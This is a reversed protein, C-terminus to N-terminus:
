SFEELLYAWRGEPLQLRTSTPRLEVKKKPGKRYTFQQFRHEGFFSRIVTPQPEESRQLRQAEATTLQEGLDVTGQLQVVLEIAAYGIRRVTEWATRETSDFSDGNSASKM